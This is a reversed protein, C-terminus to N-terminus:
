KWFEQENHIMLSKDTEVMPTNNIRGHVWRVLLETNGRVLKGFSWTLIGLMLIENVLFIFSTSSSNLRKACEIRYM